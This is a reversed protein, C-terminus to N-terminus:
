WSAATVEVDVGPEAWTDVTVRGSPTSIRFAVRGPTDFRAM